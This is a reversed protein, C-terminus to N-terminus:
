ESEVGAAKLVFDPTKPEDPVINERGKDLAWRHLWSIGNRRVFNDPLKYAEDKMAEDLSVFKYNRKKLMKAIDDFYDSNIFNAHLLLIQRIERGFIKVSQREWYDTKADLYPVYAAGIRAMLPKDGKDFANDYARAFIWDANDITVPAITYERESLFKGLDSKTELSLGTWLFPHRFYRMKLGKTALLEKTIIEGKLIEDKYKELPVNAINVHSFTHNGLELGANTWARLLDVQAEDRKEGAYLKGENVFGIAPVKAKTIHRLLKRTIEQRNKLDKRTSVVPLDDITVAIQRQPKQARVSIAAGVFVLIFLLIALKM